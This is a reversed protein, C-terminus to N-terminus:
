SRPLAVLCKSSCSFHADGQRFHTLSNMQPINQKTYEEDALKTKKEYRIIMNPVAVFANDFPSRSPAPRYLSSHFLCRSVSRLSWVALLPWSEESAPIGQSPQFIAVRAFDVRPSATYLCHVSSFSLRSRSVGLSARTRTSPV